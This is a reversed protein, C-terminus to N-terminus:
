RATINHWFYHLLVRLQKTCPTAACCRVRLNGVGHLSRVNTAHAWVASALVIGVLLTLVAHHNQRHIM